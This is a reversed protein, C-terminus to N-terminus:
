GALLGVTRTDEHGDHFASLAARFLKDEPLARSFLTMSSIFKKDDPSGFIANLPRPAVSDPAHLLVAETCEVLRAWLIPHAAYARAEDLGSLAYHRAMESQGLGALQPFIFWMWHSEKRGARLEHLAAPYVQDQAALFKAIMAGHTETM